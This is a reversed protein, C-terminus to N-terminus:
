FSLNQGSLKPWFWPHVNYVAFYPVDRGTLLIDDERKGTQGGDGATEDKDM